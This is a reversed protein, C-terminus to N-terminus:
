FLRAIDVGHVDLWADRPYIVEHRNRDPNYATPYSYTLPDLMDHADLWANLAKWGFMKGTARWVAQQSARTKSAGFRAAMDERERIARNAIRQYVSNRQCATAERKHSIQAKTRIAQDREGAIVVKEKESVVLAELAEIYNGPLAKPTPADKRFYSNVLERQVQWALDDTFSKVLMLYGQETFVRLGRPPIDIGFPHFEEKKYFDILYTDEGEIFRERNTKFNSNATGDPRGHVQDIMAFTVVQQSQYEVLPLSTNRIRIETTRLM